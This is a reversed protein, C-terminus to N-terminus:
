PWSLNTTWWLSVSVKWVMSSPQSVLAWGPVINRPVGQMWSPGPFPLHGTSHPHVHYRNNWAQGYFHGM